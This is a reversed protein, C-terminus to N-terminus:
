VCYSIKHVGENILYVSFTARLMSQLWFKYKNISPLFIVIINDASVLFFFLSGAVIKFFFILLM